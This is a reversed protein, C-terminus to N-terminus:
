AVAKRTGAYLVHKCAECFSGKAPEGCYITDLGEGALPRRCGNDPLQTLTMGKALQEDTIPKPPQSRTRPAANPNRTRAVGNRRGAHERRRKSTAEKSKGKSLGLRWLKGAVADRAEPDDFVAKALGDYSLDGVAYLSTLLEVREPTWKYKPTQKGM